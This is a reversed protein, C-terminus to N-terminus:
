GYPYLILYCSFQNNASPPDVGMDAVTTTIKDAETGCIALLNVKKDQTGSYKISTDTCVFTQPLSSSCSLVLNETNLIETIAAKTILNNKKNFIVEEPYPTYSNTQADRLKSKAVDIPNTKTSFDIMGMVSMLLGLIALAVVAAILLNFVSFAQGKSNFMVAGRMFIYNIIYFYSIKLFM